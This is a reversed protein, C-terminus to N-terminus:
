FHFLTDIIENDTSEISDGIFKFEIHEIYYYDSAECNPPPYNGYQAPSYSLLAEFTYFGEKGLGPFDKADFETEEDFRENILDEDIPSTAWIMDDDVEYGKFFLKGNEKKAMQCQGSFLIFDETLKKFQDFAEKTTM